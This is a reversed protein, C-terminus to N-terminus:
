GEIGKANGRGRLAEIDLQEADRSVFSAYGSNKGNEAIMHLFLDSYKQYAEVGLSNVVAM